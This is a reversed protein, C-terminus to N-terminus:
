KKKATTKKDNSGEGKSIYLRPSNLIPLQLWMAVKARFGILFFLGVCVVLTTAGIWIWMSQGEVVKGYTLAGIGACLLLGVPGAYKNLASAGLWAGVLLPLGVGSAMVTVALVTYWTPVDTHAYFVDGLAGLGFGLGTGIFIWAILWGTLTNIFKTSYRYNTDEYRGNAMKKQQQTM